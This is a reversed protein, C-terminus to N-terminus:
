PSDTPSTKGPRFAQAIRNDGKPRRRSIWIGGAANSAVVALHSSCASGRWFDRTSFSSAEQYNWLRRRRCGMQTFVRTNTRTRRGRRAMRRGATSGVGAAVEETSGAVAVAVGGTLGVAAAATLGAVAAGAGAISGGAAAVVGVISGVAPVSRLRALSGLAGWYQQLRPALGSEWVKSFCVGALRSRNATPDHRRM